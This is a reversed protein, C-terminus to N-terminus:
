NYVRVLSQAPGLREAAPIVGATGDRFSESHPHLHMELGVEKLVKADIECHAAGKCKYLQVILLKM